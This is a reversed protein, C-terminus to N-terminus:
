LLLIFFFEFALSVRKKKPLDVGPTYVEVPDGIQSIDEVPITQVSIPSGLTITESLFIVLFLVHQTTNGNACHCLGPLLM